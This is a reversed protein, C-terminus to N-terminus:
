MDRQDSQGQAAYQVEIHYDKYQQHLSEPFQQYLYTKPQIKCPFGAGFPHNSIRDTELFNYALIRFHFSVGSIWLVSVIDLSIM